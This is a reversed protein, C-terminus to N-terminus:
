SFKPAFERIANHSLIGVLVIKSFNLSNLRATVKFILDLDRFRIPWKCEKVPTTKYKQYNLIWGSTSSIYLSTLTVRIGGGVHDVGLGIHGRWKLQPYLEAATPPM